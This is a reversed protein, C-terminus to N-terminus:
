TNETFPSAFKTKVGWVKKNPKTPHQRLSADDEAELLPGEMGDDVTYFINGKKIDQIDCTEKEGSESLRIVM